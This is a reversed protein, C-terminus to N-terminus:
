RLDMRAPADLMVARGLARYHARRDDIEGQIDPVNTEEVDDFESGDDSITYRETDAAEDDAEHISITVSPGAALAAAIERDLQAVTKKRPV